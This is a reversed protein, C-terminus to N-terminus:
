LPSSTPDDDDFNTNKSSGDSMSDDDDQLDIETDQTTPVQSTEIPTDFLQTSVDNIEELRSNGYPRWDGKKSSPARAEPGTLESTDRSRKASDVTNPPPVLAFGILFENMEDNVTYFVVKGTILWFVGGMIGIM